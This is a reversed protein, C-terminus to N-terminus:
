FSQAPCLKSAVRIQLTKFVSFSGGALVKRIEPMRYSVQLTQSNSADIQLGLKRGQAELDNLQKEQPEKHRRLVAQKPFARYIRRAVAMNALLMFEEIMRYCFFINCKLQM